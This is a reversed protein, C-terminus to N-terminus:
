GRGRLGRYLDIETRLRHPLPAGAAALAEAYGELADLLARRLQQQESPRQDHRAAELRARASHVDDLLATLQEHRGPDSRRGAYM